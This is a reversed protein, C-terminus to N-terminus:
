ARLRAQRDTGPSTGNDARKRTFDEAVAKSQSTFIYGPYSYDLGVFKGPDGRLSGVAFIGVGYGSFM